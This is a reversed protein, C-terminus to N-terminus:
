HFMEHSVLSTGAPQPVLEKATVTCLVGNEDHVLVQVYDYGHETLLCRAQAFPAHAVGFQDCMVLMVPKTYLGAQFVSASQPSDVASTTSCPACYRRSELERVLQSVPDLTCGYELGKLMWATHITGDDFLVAASYRIPHLIDQRDCHNVGRASDFLKRMMPTLVSAASEVKLAVKRAFDVVNDRNTFRYQYPHPWLDGLSCRVAMTGSGNGIVVPTGPLASSMLYERCLVGPSTAADSDTVVAVKRIVPNQMFRLQLLACREACIAGGIYGQEGNAGRILCLTGDVKEVVLIAYVRFNSQAPSSHLEARGSNCLEVLAKDDEMISLIEEQTYTELGAKM